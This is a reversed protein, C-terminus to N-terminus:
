AYAWSQSTWRGSLSFRRKVSSRDSHDDIRTMDIRTMATDELDRTALAGAACRGKRQADISSAILLGDMM